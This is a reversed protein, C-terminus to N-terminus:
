GHVEVRNRGDAKARYLAADAEEFLQEITKGAEMAAIGFSATVRLEPSVETFKLGEVRARLDDAIRTARELDAGVLGIIIEEGGYRGVVDIGRLSDRFTTAVAHLVADGAAHGYTDNVKKLFDIDVFVLSLSKITIFQRRDPNRLQFDVEAVYAKLLHMLGRRNLVNTLEDTHVQLELEAVRKKLREVQQKYADDQSM